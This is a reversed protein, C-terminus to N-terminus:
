APIWAFCSLLITLICFVLAVVTHILPGLSYHYNESYHTGPSDYVDTFFLPNKKRRREYQLLHQYAGTRMLAELRSGLPFYYVFELDGDDNKLPQHCQPCRTPVYASTWVRCNACRACAVLEKVTVGAKKYLFRDAM